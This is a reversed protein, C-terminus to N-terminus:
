TWARRRFPRTASARCTPAIVTFNSALIKALPRWMLSTEAYGHLLLVTPGNGGTTVSVTGDDVAVSQTVFGAGFGASM